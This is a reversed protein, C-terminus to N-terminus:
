ERIRYNHLLDILEQDPPRNRGKFGSYNILFVGTSDFFENNFERRELESIEGDQNFDTCRLAAVYFAEMVGKRNRGALADALDNSSEFPNNLVVLITAGLAVGGAILGDRLKGKM